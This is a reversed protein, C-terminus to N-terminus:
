VYFTNIAPMQSLNLKDQRSDSSSEVGGFFFFLEDLCM